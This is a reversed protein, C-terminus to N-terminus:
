YDRGLFRKVKNNVAKSFKIFRGDKGRPRDFKQPKESVFKDAKSTSRFRGRSDRPRDYKAKAPIPSIFKDWDKLIGDKTDKGMNKWAPVSKKAWKRVDNQSYSPDPFYNQIYDVLRQYEVM